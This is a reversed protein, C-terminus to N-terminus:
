RTREVAYRALAAPLAIPGPLGELREAANGAWARARERAGELGYVAPMTLKGRARDTGAGKGLVERAATENLIDDACQFALGLTCGYDTLADLADADAAASIAGMRVAARFLAATKHRHICHVRDADPSAGEAAMDEVQGAIVGRSGAAQALEAAYRNPAYPAPARCAALWEFALTLLADGALIATAEGFAKHVTPRGRRLDDDDMAPLDDHILTYTHLAEVAIAPLLADEARGGAAEAAALCLVPRLRKGGSFISYRMARHLAAPRADEAPLHAGLARDIRDRMQEMTALEAARM